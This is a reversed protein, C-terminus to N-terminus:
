ISALHVMEKYVKRWGRWKGTEGLSENHWLSVFEGNVAKITKIMSTITELSEETSLRLYDKMTVDMLSVPHITLPTQEDSILDYFKFPIAIGARFGPHSAYGMSYDDRIGLKLLSRYTQPMKFYLFHQRSITVNRNLVVSLAAHESQLKDYHKNSILSPHIGVGHKKALSRLLQQFSNSTLTVNNDDGGDDAFLIFYLLLHNYPEHVDSIFSYTDYPDKTVGTLVKMRLFIDNFHGFFADRCLGGLTRIMSRGLYCFAHDMDITPIYRYEHHRFIITPYIKVLERKIMEAWLHVVPIHLFTEKFAISDIAKFRGYSDVQHPLYEEYRSIVYFAASFPDFNLVSDPHLLPFIVPIEDIILNNVTQKVIMQEFLLNTAEIFLGEPMPVKGYALKPGTYSNYEDTSLTFQM